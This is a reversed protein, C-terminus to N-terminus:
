GVSPIVRRETLMPSSGWAKSGRGLGQSSKLSSAAQLLDVAQKKKLFGSNHQFIECLSSSCTSVTHPFYNLNLFHALAPHSILPNSKGISNASSIQPALEKRDEKMFPLAVGLGKFAFQTMGKDM